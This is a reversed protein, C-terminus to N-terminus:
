EMGFEEFVSVCVLQICKKKKAMSLRVTEKRACLDSQMIFMYMNNTIHYHSRKGELLAVLYIGMLCYSVHKKKKM